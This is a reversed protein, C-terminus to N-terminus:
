AGREGGVVIQVEFGIVGDIVPVIAVVRRLADNFEAIESFAFVPVTLASKAILGSKM